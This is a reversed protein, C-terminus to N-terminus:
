AEFKHFVLIINIFFLGIVVEDVYYQEDIYHKNLSVGIAYYPNSFLKIELVFDFEYSGIFGYCLALILLFLLIFGMLM